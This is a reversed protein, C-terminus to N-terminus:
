LVSFTTSFNITTSDLTMQGPYFNLYPSIYIDHSYGYGLALRQSLIKNTLVTHDNTSRPNGYSIALSSNFNIQDNFNYKVAPYFSLKYREANKDKKDYGREFLYYSISTDLVTAFASTGLNYVLSNDYGIGGYEGWGRYIPNTVASLTVSNRVQVSGLKSSIDYSVFPNKMDYRKVGQFPTLANIGTGMGLTSQKDIRYRAGISGSINTEYVGASGDPNPQMPNNLDGIPAGAYSLNFKLSYRSLSGSDAKLKADTIDQNDDFKKNKLSDGLTTRSEVASDTSGTPLSSTSNGAAVVTQSMALASILLFTLQFM